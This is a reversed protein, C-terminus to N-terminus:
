SAPAQYHRPKEVMLRFEEIETIVVTNAVRRTEVTMAPM